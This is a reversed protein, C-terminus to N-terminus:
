QSEKPKNARQEIRNWVDDTVPKRTFGAVQGRWGRKYANIRDRYTPDTLLRKRKYERMWERQYERQYERRMPDSRRLAERQREVEKADPDRRRSQAWAAKRANEAARYAPDTMRAAHSRRLSALRRERYDPDAYRVRQQKRKVVVQKREQKARKAEADRQFKWRAKM